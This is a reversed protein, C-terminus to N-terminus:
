FRAGRDPPALLMSMFDTHRYHATDVSDPEVHDLDVAHSPDVGAMPETEHLPEAKRTFGLRACIGSQCLMECAKKGGLFGDEFRQARAPSGAQAKRLDLYDLALVSGWGDTEVASGRLTGSREADSANM